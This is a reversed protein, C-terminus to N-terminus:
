EEWEFEVEKTKITSSTEFTTIWTAKEHKNLYIIGTFKYTEKFKVGCFPCHTYYRPNGIGLDTLGFRKYRKCDGCPM